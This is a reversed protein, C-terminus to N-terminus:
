LPLTVQLTLQPSHRHRLCHYQENYLQRHKVSVDLGPYPSLPMPMALCQVRHAVDGGGSQRDEDQGSTPDTGVVHGGSNALRQQGRNVPWAGVKRRLPGLCKVIVMVRALSSDRTLSRSSLVLCGQM